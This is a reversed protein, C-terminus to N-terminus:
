KNLFAQKKEEKAALEVALKEEEKRKAILPLNRITFTPKIIGKDYVM